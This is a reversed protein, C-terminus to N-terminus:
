YYHIVSYQDFASQLLNIISLVSTSTNNNYAVSMRLDNSRKVQHEPKAKGSMAYKPGIAIIVQMVNKVTHWQSNM